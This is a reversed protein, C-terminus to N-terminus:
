CISDADGPLIDSQPPRITGQLNTNEKSDYRPPKAHRKPRAFVAPHRSVLLDASSCLTMILIVFAVQRLGFVVNFLM